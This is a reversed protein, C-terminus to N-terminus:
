TDEKTGVHNVENVSLVRLELERATIQLRKEFTISLRRLLEITSQRQSPM